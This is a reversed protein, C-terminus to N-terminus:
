EKLMSILSLNKELTKQHNARVNEAETLDDNLIKIEENKQGLTDDLKDQLM